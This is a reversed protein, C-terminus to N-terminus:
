RDWSIRLVFYENTFARLFYIRRNFKHSPIQWSTKTFVRSEGTYISSFIDEYRSTSLLGRPDKDEFIDVNYEGYKQNLVSMLRGWEMAGAKYGTISERYHIILCTDNQIGWEGMCPSEYLDIGLNQATSNPQANTFEVALFAFVFFIYKM